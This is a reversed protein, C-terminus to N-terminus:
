IINCIIMIKAINKYLTTNNNKIIEINNIDFKEYEKILEKTTKSLGFDGIYFETKKNKKTVFINDDRIDQHVIGLKHMDEIKKLIQKEQKSTLNNNQMWNNLSGENMWEMVIYISIKNLSFNCLYYDYIKPGINKDGMKKSIEIENKIRLMSENPNFYIDNPNLHQTKIAYKTKNKEVLFVTGFAGSGIEHIVKYDGFCKYTGNDKPEITKFDKYNFKDKIKFIKNDFHRFFYCLINIKDNDCKYKSLKLILNNKDKIPIKKLFMLTKKYFKELKKINILTDYTEKSDIRSELNKKNLKNYSM